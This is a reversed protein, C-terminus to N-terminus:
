IRICDVSMIYYSSIQKGENRSHANRSHRRPQFVCLMVHPITSSSPKRYRSPSHFWCDEKSALTRPENRPNQWTQLQHAPQNLQETSQGIYLSDQLSFRWYRGSERRHPYSRLMGPILWTQVNVFGVGIALYITDLILSNALVLYHLHWRPLLPHTLDSCIPQSILSTESYKTFCIFGPCM